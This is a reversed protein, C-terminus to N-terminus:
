NPAASPGACDGSGTGGLDAARRALRRRAAARLPRRRQGGDRTRAARGKREPELVGSDENLAEVLTTASRWGTRRRRAPAGAVQTLGLYRLRRTTASAATSCRVHGARCRGAVQDLWARARLFAALPDVRHGAALGKPVADVRVTGRKILQFSDIRARPATPWASRAPAIRRRTSARSAARASRAAPPPPRARGDAYRFGRRVRAPCRDRVPVPDDRRREGRDLRCARGPGPRRGHDARSLACRGRPGRM